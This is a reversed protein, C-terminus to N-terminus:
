RAKDEADDQIICFRDVWLYEQDLQECVKIADTITRPLITDSLSGEFGLAEINHKLAVLTTECDAGWVYSLAVYACDEVTRICRNTVDILRFSSTLDKPKIDQQRRDTNRNRDSRMAGKLSDWNVWQDMHPVDSDTDRGIIELEGFHDNPPSHIANERHYVRTIKASVRTNARFKTIDMWDMITDRLEMCLSSDQSDAEYDFAVEMATNIVQCLPCDTDPASKMQFTERLVIEKLARAINELCCVIHWLRMHRCPDCLPIEEVDPGCCVSEDCPHHYFQYCQQLKEDPVDGVDPCHPCAEIVPLIDDVDLPVDGSDDASM